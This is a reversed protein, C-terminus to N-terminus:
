SCRWMRRGSAMSAEEGASGVVLDRDGDGDIDEALLSSPNLGVLHEVVPAFTGNGRGLAISVVGQRSGYGTVPDYVDRAGASVVDLDGDGDLDASLVLEAEHSLATVIDAGFKGDGSGVIVKLHANSIGTAYGEEDYGRSSAGGVLDLNGM